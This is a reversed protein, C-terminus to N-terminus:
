NCCLGGNISPEYPLQPFNIQPQPGHYHWIIFIFFAVQLPPSGWCARGHNAREACNSRITCLLSVFIMLFTLGFTPCNTWHKVHILFHSSASRPLVGARTNLRYMNSFALICYSAICYWAFCDFVMCYKCYLSIGHLVRNLDNLVEVPGIPNTKELQITGCPSCCHQILLTNRQSARSM